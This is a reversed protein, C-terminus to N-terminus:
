PLNIKYTQCYKNQVIQIFYIGPSLSQLPITYRSIQFTSHYLLQGKVSYINCDTKTDYSQLIHLGDENISLKIAPDKTPLQENETPIVIGNSPSFTGSIIQIPTSATGKRTGAEVEGMTIQCSIRENEFLGGTSSIIQQGRLLQTSGLVLLFFLFRLM